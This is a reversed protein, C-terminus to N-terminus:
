YRLSSLHVGTYYHPIIQKYTWGKKGLGVAGSQCMGVQHGFGRGFIELTTMVQKQMPVVEKKVVAAPAAKHATGSVVAWGSAPKSVRKLGKETYVMYQMALRDDGVKIIGTKEDTQYVEKTIKKAKELENRRDTKVFTTSPLNFIRRFTTGKVEYRRDSGVFVMKDVRDMYGASVLEVEYIEDALWVKEKGLAAKIDAMNLKRNWRYMTGETCSDCQVRKLYPNTGGFVYINDSTFGGCTAHYLATIPKGNNVIIQGRTAKVCTDVSEAEAGIGAYVQCHTSDCLDANDKKHKNLSSFAYTRAIVTQAKLSEIPSRSGMERGVVGRLYDEMRLTNVLVAGSENIAVSLAGRYSKGNINIIPRRGRFNITQGMYPTRIKRGAKNLTELSWEFKEDAKMSRLRKHQHNNLFGGEPFSITFKKHYGGLKIRVQPEKGRYQQLEPILMTTSPINMPPKASSRAVNTQAGARVSTQLSKTATPANKAQVSQARSATQSLNALKPAEKIIAAGDPPILGLTKKPKPETLLKPGTKIMPPAGFLGVALCLFFLLFIGKTFRTM